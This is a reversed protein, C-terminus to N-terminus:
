GSILPNLSALINKMVNVEMTTKVGVGFYPSQSKGTFSLIGYVAFTKVGVGFYPSQSQWVVLGRYVWGALRSGWGSILPNLSDLARVVFAGNNADQGRGRFLPISLDASHHLVSPQADQSERQNM